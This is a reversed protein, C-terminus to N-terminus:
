HGIQVGAGNNSTKIITQVSKYLVQSEDDANAILTNFAINSVDVLAKNAVSVVLSPISSFEDDMTLAGGHTLAIVQVSPMYITIFIDEYNGEPHKSSLKLSSDELDILIGAVLESDGKIEARYTKSKVIHIRANIASSIAEFRDLSHDKQGVVAITCFLAFAVM